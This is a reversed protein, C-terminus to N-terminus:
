RGHPSSIVKKALGWGGAQESRQALQAEGQHSARPARECPPLHRAPGCRLAPVPRPDCREIPRSPSRGPGMSRGWIWPSVSGPMCAMPWFLSPAPLRWFLWKLLFSPLPEPACSKLGLCPASSNGREEAGHGWPARTNLFFRTSRKQVKEPEDAARGMPVTVMIQWASTGHEIITELLEPFDPISLRNIQSNNYLSLGADKIHGMARLAADFTGQAARLPDHTARMGDISVSAACLGADKAARALDRTIGRGGTAMSVALGAKALKNVIQLWDARLYAEGGILTVEKVGLDVLQGALDLAQETDLEDPRARGARSGFHRCALDCALTIEWVCYVPRVADM